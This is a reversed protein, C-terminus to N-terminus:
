VPLSTQKEDATLERRRLVKWSDARYVTATNAATRVTVVTVPVLAKGTDVQGLLSVVREEYRDILSKLASVVDKKLDQLRRQAFLATAAEQAALFQDDASLKIELEEVTRALEAEQEHERTQDCRPPEDEHLEFKHENELTDIATRVEAELDLLEQMRPTKPAEPLKTPEIPEEPKKTAMRRAPKAPEGAIKELHELAEAGSEFPAEVKGGLYFRKAAADKPDAKAKAAKPTKTKKAASKKAAAVYEEVTNKAENLDACPSGMGPNTVHGYTGRLRVNAHWHRGIPLREYTVSATERKGLPGYFWDRGVQWWAPAKM